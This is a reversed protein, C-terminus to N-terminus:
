VSLCVALIEDKNDTFTPLHSNKVPLSTKFSFYKSSFAASILLNSYEDKPLYNFAFVSM